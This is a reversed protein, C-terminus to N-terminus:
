LRRSAGGRGRQEGRQEGREIVGGTKVEDGRVQRYGGVLDERLQDCTIQALKRGDVFISVDVPDDPRASDVAWGSICATSILDVHSRLM